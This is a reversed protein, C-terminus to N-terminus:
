EVAVFGLSVGDGAVDDSEGTQQRFDARQAATGIDYAIGHHPAGPVDRWDGVGHGVIEGLGIEAVVATPHDDVSPWLGCFDSSSL